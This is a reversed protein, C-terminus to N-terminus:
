EKPGLQVVRENGRASLGGPLDIATIEGLAVAALRDWAAFDMKGGPWGERQWARRFVERILHRPAAALTARAFILQQGARPKEAQELLQRAAAALQRHVSDAQGALRGLVSVIAPNFDKILLPLLQHRIRNRTRALDLNTRDTRYLQGLSELYALVEPRRVALLPRILSVDDNLSRVAAIGRLGQWGAGRILRHLVTEAQDDATHGTAVWRCGTEQAVKALWDYRLRRAVSEMNGKESRTQASVDCREVHCDLQLSEALQRVFAEDGDSEDGRLQHNLHAVILPKVGVEVLARLLAISDPGGSVAAVIGGQLRRLSRRLKRVLSRSDNM